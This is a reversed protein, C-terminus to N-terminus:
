SLRELSPRVLPSLKAPLADPSFWGLEIIEHPNHPNAPLEDRAIVTTFIHADYGIQTDQDLLFALPRLRSNEVLLGLEEHLERAAAVAPAENKGVGGGPISWRQTGITEWVLLVEGQPSMVLVRARPRGTLRGHFRLFKLAVPSVMRGAHRRLRSM